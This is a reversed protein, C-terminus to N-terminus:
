PARGSFRTIWRASCFGSAPMIRSPVTFSPSVTCTEAFLLPSVISPANASAAYGFPAGPGAVPEGKSGRPELPSFQGARVTVREPLGRRAFPPRTAASGFLRKFLVRSQAPKRAMSLYIPRDMAIGSMTPFAPRDEVHAYFM